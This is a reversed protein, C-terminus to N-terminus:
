DADDGATPAAAKIVGRKLIDRLGEELREIQQETNYYHTSVRVTNLGYDTQRVWVHHRRWLTEVVDRRDFNGFAFGILGCCLDAHESTHIKVGDITKLRARLNEALSRVRQEIRDRGITNQFDMATGVAIVLPSSRQSLRDYRQAGGKPNDWGGSVVTPWVQDQAERRM